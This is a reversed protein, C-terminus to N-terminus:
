RIKITVPKLQKYWKLQHFQISQLSPIWGAGSGFRVMCSRLPLQFLTAEGEVGGWLLLPSGSLLKLLLTVHGSKQKQFFFIVSSCLSYIPPTQLPHHLSHPKQLLPVWLNHYVQNISISFCSLNSASDFCMTISQIWATHSFTTDLMIGMHRTHTVPHINVNNEWVLFLYPPSLGNIKLNKKMQEAKKQCSLPSVILGTQTYRLSIYPGCVHLHDAFMQFHMELEDKPKWRHCNFGSNEVAVYNCNTNEFAKQRAM